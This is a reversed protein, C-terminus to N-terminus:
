SGLLVTYFSDVLTGNPTFCRVTASESGWGEVKCQANGGGYATVQVDGGDFIQADAGSWAVNYRGTGLRAISIAGGSPNSSYFPSPTYSATSPQDAWAYALHPSPLLFLVNFNVDVAVGLKSFCLVSITLDPSGGWGGVKCQPPGSGVANVQVHGGNSSALAGIGTFLVSYRGVGLRTVKIAGGPNWSANAPPAYSATTPKNAFAYAVDTYNRTTFVTFYANAAAQTSAKFCRVDLVSSVLTATAPKCYTDDGLYGTVHVTSTAGLFASLTAFKVRYQGTTGAPRTITIAGGARNFSYFSSPTYSASTPDNAWAYGDAWHARDLILGAANFDHRPLAGRQVVAMEPPAAVDRHSGDVSRTPDCGALAAGILPLTAAVVRLTPRM